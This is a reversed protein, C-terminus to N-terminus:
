GRAGRSRQGEWSGGEGNGGLEAVDLRCSSMSSDSIGEVDLSKFSPSSMSASVGGTRRECDQKVLGWSMTCHRGAVDGSPGASLDVRQIKPPPSHSILSVRNRAIAASAGARTEVPMLSRGGGKSVRSAGASISASAGGGGDASPRTIAGTGSLIRRGFTAAEETIIADAAASM